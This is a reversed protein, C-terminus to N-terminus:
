AFLEQFRERLGTSRAIVRRIAGEIVHDQGIVTVSRRARTIATYVLERSLFSTAVRPLMLGVRAYESGQAKHVTIGYAHEVANSISDLSLARIGASTRLAFALNSGSGFDARLIIGFDGNYVKKRDDNHLIM